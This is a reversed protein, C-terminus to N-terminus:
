GFLMSGLIVSGWGFLAGWINSTVDYTDIKGIGFAKQFIEFTSAIFFSFFFASFLEVGINCLYNGLLIVGFFHAGKDRETFICEVTRYFFRLVVMIASFIRKM